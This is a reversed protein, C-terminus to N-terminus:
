REFAVTAKQWSTSDARCHVKKRTWSLPGVEKARFSESPLTILTDRPEVWLQVQPPPRESCQM